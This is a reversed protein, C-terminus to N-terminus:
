RRKRYSDRFPDIYEKEWERRKIALEIAKQTELLIREEEEKKIASRKKIYDTMLDNAKNVFPKLAGKVSSMSVFSEVPLEFFFMDDNSKCFFFVRKKGNKSCDNFDIFIPKSINRWSSVVRLKLKTVNIMGEETIETKFKSIKEVDTKLRSGNLVWIINNYFNNRSDIEILSTPSHQFEIFFGDPRKVDSIHREGSEDKHIIEHWEKPFRNKWNRHWETEREKWIDCATDSKHKWHWIVQTGCYAKAIAGCFACVGVLNPAAERKQGNVLAYQM